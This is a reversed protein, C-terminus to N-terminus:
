KKKVRFYCIPKEVSTFWYKKVIEFSFEMYYVTLSTKTEGTFIDKSQFQFLYLTENNM